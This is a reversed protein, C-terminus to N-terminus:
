IWLYFAALLFFWTRIIITWIFFWRYFTTKGFIHVSISVYWL